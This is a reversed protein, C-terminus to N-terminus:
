EYGRSKLAAKWSMEAIEKDTGLSCGRNLYEFKEWVSKFSKTGRHKLESNKEGASFGAEFTESATSGEYEQKYLEEAWEKYYDLVTSKDEKIEVLWSKPCYEVIVNPSDGFEIRAIGETTMICMLRVEKGDMAGLSENKMFTKPVEEPIELRYRRTKPASNFHEELYEITKMMETMQKFNKPVGEDICHDYAERIQRTDVTPKIYTEKM